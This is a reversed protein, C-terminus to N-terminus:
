RQVLRYYVKATKSYIIMYFVIFVAVCGAICLLIHMTNTLGFMLLIRKVMPFAFAVHLVATILPLFFVMLIQKRITVKVEENSLGVKQMIIFRNRDVMGESIQKFYIILVTAMMFVIGLFSGLYLLGGYTSYWEQRSM